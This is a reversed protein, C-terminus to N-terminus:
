QRRQFVALKGLRRSGHGPLGRHRGPEARELVAREPEPMWQDPRRYRLCGRRLLAPSRMGCEGLGELVLGIAGDPVPRGHCSWPGVLLDRPVKVVCGLSGPKAAPAVDGQGRVFPRRLERAVPRLPRQTEEAGAHQRELEATRGFALSQQHSSLLQPKRGLLAREGREFDLRDLWGPGPRGRHCAEYADRLLEGFRAM